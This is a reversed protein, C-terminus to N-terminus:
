AVVEMQQKNKKQKAKEQLAMAVSWIQNYLRSMRPNLEGVNGPPIGKPPQGIPNRGTQHALLIEYLRETFACEAKARAMIEDSTEQRYDLRVGKQNAM